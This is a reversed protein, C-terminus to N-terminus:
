EMNQLLFEQLRSTSLNRHLKGRYALSLGGTEESVVIVKADVVESLGVASRHRLGCAKPIRTDHSVPLICGAAVIRDGSVIMAGDHLPSNKFFINEILRTSLLADIRDGTAVYRSLDDIQKVAILAGEKSESMHKCALIIRDVTVHATDGEKVEEKDFFRLISHWQKRSGVRILMHRIEEQFIIVLAVAGVSFVRDMISGLLRMRFVQSVLIWFLILSLIGTFINMTGNQKMMKYLYFLLAAVVLIDILDKIGFDWM